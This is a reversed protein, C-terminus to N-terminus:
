IDTKLGHAVPYVTDKASSGVGHVEYAEGGHSKQFFVCVKKSNELHEVCKKLGDGIAIELSGSNGLEIAIIIYVGYMFGHSAFRDSHGIYVLVAITNRMDPFPILAINYYVSSGYFIKAFIKGHSHSLEEPRIPFISLRAKIISIIISDDM